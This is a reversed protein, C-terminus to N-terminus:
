DLLYKNYFELFEQYTSYSFEFIQDKNYKRTSNFPLDKRGKLYYKLKGVLKTNSEIRLTLNVMVRYENCDVRLCRSYDKNDIEFEVKLNYQESLLEKAVFMNQMHETFQHIESTNIM